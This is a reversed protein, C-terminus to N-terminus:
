MVSFWYQLLDFVPIIPFFLIISHECQLLILQADGAQFLATLTNTDNCAERIRGIVACPGQVKEHFPM